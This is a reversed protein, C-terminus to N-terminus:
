ACYVIYTKQPDYNEIWKDFNRGEEYVAGQIKFGSARWDSGTRVDLFIVDPDDIKARADEKTIRPIHSTANVPTITAIVGAIFMLVIILSKIKM